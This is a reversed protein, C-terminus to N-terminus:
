ERPDMRPPGELPVIPDVPDEPDTPEPTPPEKTDGPDVTTM